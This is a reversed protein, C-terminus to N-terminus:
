SMYVPYMVAIDFFILDWRVVVLVIREWKFDVGNVQSKLTLAKVVRGSQDSLFHILFMSSISKCHLGFQM